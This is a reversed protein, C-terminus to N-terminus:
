PKVTERTPSEHNSAPLVNSPALNCVQSSHDLGEMALSSIVSYVGAQILKYIYLGYIYIYLLKLINRM